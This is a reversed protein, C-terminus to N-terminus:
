LLCARVIISQDMMNLSIKIIPTETLRHLTSLSFLIMHLSIIATWTIDNRIATWVKSPTPM